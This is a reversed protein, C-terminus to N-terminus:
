DGKHGIKTMVWCVIMLILCTTIFKPDFTLFYHSRVGEIKLFYAILYDISSFIVSLSLIVVAVKLIVDPYKVIIDAVKRIPNTM